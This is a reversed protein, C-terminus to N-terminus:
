RLGTLPHPAMHLNQNVFLRSTPFTGSCHTSLQLSFSAILNVIYRYNKSCHCHDELPEDRTPLSDLAGAAIARAVVVYQFVFDSPDDPHNEDVLPIWNGDGQLQPLTVTYFRWKTIAFSWHSPM